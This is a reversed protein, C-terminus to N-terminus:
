SIRGTARNRGPHQEFPPPAPLKQRTLQRGKGLEIEVLRRNPAAKEARYAKRQKEHSQAHHCAVLAVLERVRRHEAALGTVDRHLRFEGGVLIRRVRPDCARVAVDSGAGSPKNAGLQRAGILDIRYHEVLVGSRNFGGDLIQARNLCGALLAMPRLLEVARLELDERM